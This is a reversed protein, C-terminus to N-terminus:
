IIVCKRKKTTRKVNSIESNIKVIMKPKIKMEKKCPDEINKSHVVEKSIEKEEDSDEESSFREEEQMLFDELSTTEDQRKIKEIQKRHEEPNSDPHPIHIHSPKERNAKEVLIQCKKKFLEPVNRWEVSADVNAPSSYNPSDLLSQVSLLITNVNQTPMWREGPLEGSIEVNHDGPPHLISICVLGNEYVNPHWFQSLFRLEPPMMPFDSPFKMTLQFVGGEYPTDKPGEMYVRWEFLHSEDTLEVTFGEVPDELTQRLLNALLKSAAM